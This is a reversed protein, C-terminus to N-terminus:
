NREVGRVTSSLVMLGAAILVLNKVVYQGEATLFLVNGEERFALGPGMIVLLSAVILHGCMLLLTLGVTRNFLLGLGLIMEGIGLLPFFFEQPLFPTSQAVLDAVPSGGIAKLLGFWIFVTALAIRMLRLSYTAAFQLAQEELRDLSLRLSKAAVCMQKMWGGQAGTQVALTSM